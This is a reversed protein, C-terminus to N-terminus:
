NGNQLKNAAVYGALKGSRLAASLAATAAPDQLVISQGDLSTGTGATPLTFFVGRGPATKRLSFALDELSTVSFSADLTVHPLVTRVLKRVTDRNELGGEAAMKAMVAKLFTQQNRVRQYDGDAFAHRERVFALAQRGDLRNVGAPFHVKDDVTATFPQKVLVDVGGLADTMAAFGQFDLMVTHDIHAGLLAEVTLTMLPLGGLALASNVKAEGHGPIAVWLDRMISIGYVGQRDAPLHLFVLADGRQDSANGAAATARENVRSDSGVLLINLAVAPPEPTPTPSPKPAPPTSPAAAPTAAPIPVEAPGPAAPRTLLFAAASGAIALVLLM